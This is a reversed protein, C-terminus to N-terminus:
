GLREKETMQLINNCFKEGYIDALCPDARRDRDSREPVINPNHRQLPLVHKNKAASQVHIYFKWSSAGDPLLFYCSKEGKAECTGQGQVEYVVQKVQTYWWSRTSWPLAWSHRSHFFHAHYRKPANQAVLTERFSLPARLFNPKSSWLWSFNNGM